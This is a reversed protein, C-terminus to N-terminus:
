IWLYCPKSIKNQNFLKKIDRFDITPEDGQVNIYIKSNIKQAAEAVRDTGTLCKSSTM